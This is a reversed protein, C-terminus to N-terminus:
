WKFSVLETGVFRDLIHLLVCWPFLCLVFVIYDLRDICYLFVLVSIGLVVLYLGLLGFPLVLRAPCACLVPPPLLTTRLKKFSLFRLGSLAAQAKGRWPSAFIM